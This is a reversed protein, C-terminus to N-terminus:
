CFGQRYDATGRLPVKESVVMKSPFNLKKGAFGKYQASSSCDVRFVQKERFGM